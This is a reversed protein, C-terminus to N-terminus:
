PIGRLSRPLWDRMLISRSRGLSRKKMADTVQFAPFSKAGKPPCAERDCQCVHWWFNDSAWVAVSSGPKGEWISSISRSYSQSPMVTIFRFCGIRVRNRCRVSGFQRGQLELFGLADILWHAAPSGGWAPACNIDTFTKWAIRTWYLKCLLITGKLSAKFFAPIWWSSINCHRRPYPEHQSARRQLCSNASHSKSM